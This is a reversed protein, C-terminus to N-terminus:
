MVVVAAVSCERIAMAVYEPERKCTCKSQLVFFKMTADCMLDCKNAMVECFWCKKNMGDRKHMLKYYVCMHLLTSVSIYYIEVTVNTVFM